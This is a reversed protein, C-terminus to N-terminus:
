RCSARHLFTYFLAATLETSLNVTSCHQLNTTSTCSTYFNWPKPGQPLECKKVVCDHVLPSLVFLSVFHGWSHKRYPETQKPQFRKGYFTKLMQLRKNCRFVFTLSFINTTSRLITFSFVSFPKRFFKGYVM